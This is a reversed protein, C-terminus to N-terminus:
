DCYRANGQVMRTLRIIELCHRPAHDLEDHLVVSRVEGAPLHLGCCARHLTHQFLHEAPQGVTRHWHCSGPPGVRADMGAALRGSHGNFRMPRRVPQAPREVLLQRAVDPDGFRM